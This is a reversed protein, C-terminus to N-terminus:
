AENGLARILADAVEVAKEALEDVEHFKYGNRGTNVCIGQMAQGAYYERLTMGSQAVSVQEPLQDKISIFEQEM